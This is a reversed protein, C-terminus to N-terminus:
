FDQATLALAGAGGSLIAGSVGPAQSLVHEGFFRATAVKARMFSAESSGAAIATEAALASRALQWGGHVTGALRLYPVAGSFAARVDSGITRVLYDVAREYADIGAVLHGHMATLDVGGHQRLRVATERMQAILSRATAGADRTTKRTLLDNAQIATTGEYIPLIRADRYHQAAGTEEIYGMGGHVQIGLSAVEVAMETSWGKVIPVLYENVSQAKARVEA